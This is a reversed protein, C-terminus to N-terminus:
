NPSLRYNVDILTVVYCPKGDLTTPKYVWQSVADLTGPILEPPGSEAHLHLVRGDLGILAGLRVTGQIGAARATAPYHPPGNRVVLAQQVNGGVRITMPPREGRTPLATPLTMLTMNEPAAARARALVSNGVATYDWDLKGDAWLIAGDRLLGIAGAVLLDPNAAEELARRAQAAFQGERLSRDSGAPGGNLYSQGTIGLVAAAYLRGLGADDKAEILISEAKEPTCFQIADVAERRIETNGPNKHMQQLWLESARQFADPDALDDGACHLRHVGTSVQFLGDKPDHEILWLIHLARAAKVASLDAGNPPAAYYSLLQIRDEVEGPKKVLRKELQEAQQASLSRGKKLLDFTKGTDRSQAPLGLVMFATLGAYSIKM